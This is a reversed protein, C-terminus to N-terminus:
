NKFIHLCYVQITHLIIIYFFINNLIAYLFDVQALAAAIRKKAHDESNAIRKTMTEYEDYSITVEQRNEIADM